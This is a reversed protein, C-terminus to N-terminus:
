PIKIKVSIYILYVLFQKGAILESPVPWGFPENCWLVSQLM